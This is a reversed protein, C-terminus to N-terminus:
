LLKEIWHLNYKHIMQQAKKNAAERYVDSPKHADAGIVVDNGVEGAIKWLM